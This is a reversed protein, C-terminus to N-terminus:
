IKPYHYKQGNSDIVVYGDGFPELRAAKQTPSWYEPHRNPAGLDECEFAYIEGHIGLLWVGGEPAKLAAVILPMVIPPNFMPSVEITPSPLLSPLNILGPDWHSNHCLMGNAIYTKSDTQLSVIEKIGVSKISIIRIRKTTKGVVTDFNIKKLLRPPRLTGLLAATKWIGGMIRVDVFPQKSQYSNKRIGREFRKVVFGRNEIECCFEELVDGVVQGFGVWSGASPSSQYHGDADLLGALYGAMRSNEQTWPEGIYYIEHNNIDLDKSKVWSVRKGRQVNFCGVLWPHDLTAITKGHTTTIEFCEKFARGVYEVTSKKFRRGASTGIQQPYEDFGILEDGIQLDGANVWRLDSCLIPTDPTVCNEPVHSHGCWGSYSKWMSPGMRTGPQGYRSAFPLPPTKPLVGHTAEVWRMLKRLADRQKITMSEPRAAFGVIEIQWVPERNTEVGGALNRLARAARNSDIFQWVIGNFDVLWHPWSNNANFAGIAGEATSGETTHLVGKPCGSLFTGADKGIVSKIAEPYWAM